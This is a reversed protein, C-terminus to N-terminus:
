QIDTKMSCKQYLYHKPTYMLNGSSCAQLYMVQRLLMTIYLVDSNSFLLTLDHAHSSGTLRSSLPPHTGSAMGQKYVSRADAHVDTDGSHSLISWLIGDLM